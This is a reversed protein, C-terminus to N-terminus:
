SAPTFVDGEDGPLTAEDFWTEDPPSRAPRAVPLETPLGLHKLVRKIVAEQELLAMLRLRGGCRPCTLVDLGFTRQMLTAWSRNRGGASQSPEISAPAPEAQEQGAAVGASRPGGPGVLEARAAARAGLVGFYLVLNIRPRPVLVALRELLELPTFVLDTTGDTWPHRLSLRVRGDDTLRLRDIAVPPRLVYRCVRELRQRQGAPVVLDAHLSFGNARAACSDPLWPEAQSAGLVNGLRAPRRGPRPAQATVGQVSAAALGALLPAEHVWPDDVPGEDDAEGRSRLRRAVLPEITALVEEADLSTPRRITRFTPRGPPGAFVGDLVLAHFHVNLNLAGGFRQIVVVAGGRGREIGEDRARDRLVRGVSRVLVGAVARCLDHDWALRYRLRYPLSLVWQRIPADPFVRDVLHAAREVMRRGGCSPCLARGKCSFAVLRDFGCGACHFRAFGGALWGCRLFERFAQEVFRPLGEGDRLRAAQARFTEFHERVLRYLVTDGPSRHRYVALTPPV